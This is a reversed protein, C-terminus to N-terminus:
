ITPPTCYSLILDWVLWTVSGCVPFCFYWLETTFTRLGMDPKGTQPDSLSVPIQCLFQLDVPFRAKLILLIQNCSKWLVPPFLSVLRPPCLIFRLLVLVWLFPATVGCSPLVLVVQQHQLAEQPPTPHCPSLVPVPGQCCCGALGGRYLGEQLDGNARGYLRLGFM